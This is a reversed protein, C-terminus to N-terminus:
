FAFGLKAAIRNNDFVRNYELTMKLMALNFQCGAIFRVSEVTTKKSQSINDAFLSFSPDTAAVGRLDSSSTVYGVGAYPQILPLSLGVVTEVGFMNNEFGVDVVTSPSPITQNFSMESQSFFTKVALDFPLNPFVHDLLSWKIGVGYHKMEFENVDVTPLFNLEITIGYPVSVAGYLFAFPAYPIDASPDIRQSIGEIGPIEAAGAILAAEVGFVKGLSTPPTASTHVFMGSFEESITKFDSDSLNDFTPTDAAGSISAIFFTLIFAFRNM